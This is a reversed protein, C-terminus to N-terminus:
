EEDDELDDFSIDGDVEGENVENPWIGHDYVEFGNYKETAGKPRWGSDKHSMACPEGLACKTKDRASPVRSPADGVVPRWAPGGPAASPGTPTLVVRGRGLRVGRDM